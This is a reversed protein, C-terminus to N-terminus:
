EGLGHEMVAKAFAEFDVLHRTAIAHVIAWDIAEYNHVALNRFGVSKKLRQALETDLLGEQALLEFAKGMTEPPPQKRESLIHVAVDVCIQVARSLNLVLVDQLDLDNLLDSASAPTRSRVRELCRWLSDLKREIILRDM